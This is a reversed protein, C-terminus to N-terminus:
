YSHWNDCRCYDTGRSILKSSSWYTWKWIKQSAESYSCNCVNSNFDFLNHKTLGKICWRHSYFIWLKTAFELCNISSWWLFSWNSCLWLLNFIVFGYLASPDSKRIFCLASQGVVENVDNDGSSLSILFCFRTQLSDNKLGNIWNSLNEYHHLSILVSARTIFNGFGGCITLFLIAVHGRKQLLSFRVDSSMSVWGFLLKQHYCIPPILIFVPNMNQYLHRDSLLRHSISALCGEM